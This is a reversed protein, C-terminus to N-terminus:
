AIRNRRRRMAVFVFSLGVIMGSPEPVSTLNWGIADLVQRDNVSYVRNTVGPAIGAFMVNDGPLGFDFHSISSGPQFSAPAHLELATGGADFFLDESTFDSANGVFTTGNLLKDGNGDQILSDYVSRTGTIQTTGNQNFLSAFGLAHTIEHLVVTYLDFESSTPDDLESNWNRGFNVQGAGDPDGASPDNGTTAHEFVFGNNIGQNSFYFAGMGALTGSSPANISADWRIDITGNHDLVTNLYTAVSEVTNRRAAGFTADDFGFGSNNNVDVFDFNFSIQAQTQGIALVTFILALLIKRM